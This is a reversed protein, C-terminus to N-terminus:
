THDSDNNKVPERLNPTPQSVVVLKNKLYNFQGISTAKTFVDATQESTPIFRVEVLGQNIM